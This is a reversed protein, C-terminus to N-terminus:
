IRGRAPADCIFPAAHSLHSSSHHRRCEGGGERGAAAGVRASSTPATRGDDRRRLLSHGSLGMAMGVRAGRESIETQARGATGRACARSLDADHQAKVHALHEGLTKRLAAPMMTVRDKGGKDDRVVLEGRDFNLDKVRLEVCELLRLGGGYLLSAMLWTTGHLRSLVAPVEARSLVVPLRVPRKARVIDEMWSLRRGLIVEYLFLVASLAQNQTSASVGRGALSSVFASVEAEGFRVSATQRSVHHVPPDVSLYAEETRRSYHRARIAGRVRDLLKVEM